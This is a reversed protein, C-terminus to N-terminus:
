KIRKIKTIDIPMPRNFYATIASNVCFDGIKNASTILSLQDHSILITLKIEVKSASDNKLINTSQTTVMEVDNNSSQNSDKIRM